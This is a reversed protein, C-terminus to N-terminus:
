KEGCLRRATEIGAAIVQDIDHYRYSGLRGGPVIGRAEAAEIYRRALANNKEDNIPYYRELGPQWEEPFERVVLSPVRDPDNPPLHRYETTRTWPKDADCHNVVSCGQYGHGYWEREFRTTRWELRGFEYDYLEDLAGSYVVTGAARTFEERHTRFDVGLVVPIGALMREVMKTYGRGPLGQHATAFYRDDRECWRVPLRRRVIAAPLDRPSRRWQKATYGEIFLRYMPEGITALCWDEISGTGAEPAAYGETAFLRLVAAEDPGKVGYVEEVTQLNIPFSFLRGAAAAKTHQEYRLMETFRGLYAWIRDSNAHLVHPGHAHVLMTGRGVSIEETHASGAVHDRRDVVLVSRGRDACERAVTAGYFGAGVVLVDYQKSKSM